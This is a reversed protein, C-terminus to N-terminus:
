RASRMWRVTPGVQNAAIEVASFAVDIWQQGSFVETMDSFHASMPNTSQSYTVIFRGRPGRPGLTVAHIYSDGVSLETYGQGAVFASPVAMHYTYSAGSMPLRRGSRVVAQVDGLPADLAVGGDRFRAAARALARRTEVTGIFGRPTRIPDAVDFPVRWYRPALAFGTMPLRELGRMFAAFLASGRASLSDTRNWRSLVDCADALMAVSSDEMTVQPVVRCDAVVDDVTLEALLNRASFFRQEWTAPTLARSAAFSEASMAAVRSREGRTSREPGIVRLYGELRGATDPTVFWHSDNSNFTVDSRITYPRLAAPIIGPQPARPDRSWACAPNSGDLVTIDAADQLARAPSSVVCTTWQADTVYGAVSINGYFVEGFRDAATINSWPSGHHRFLADRIGHVSRARSIALFTDAVRVNGRQPDAFTYARDATWPLRASAVVPGYRTEWIVERLTDRALPVRVEIRRMPESVDGFRYRTPDAPDLTLEYMTSRKDTTHTDSWGITPSFGIMPVPVGYLTSGFLDLSRPVTLHMAYLRETGQWPFHPNSFTFGGKGAGLLARGAAFANSGGVVDARWRVNDTLSQAAASVRGTARDPPTAAAIERLLHMSTEILPVQALRRWIDPPTLPRFWAQERCTEGPLADARVHRNFGDVYGRVMARVDVSAALRVRDVAASDLLYRFVADSSRNAIRGGVFGDVYGSDPGWYRSRDGALTVAKEVMLCLNDRAFAWGYGDAAGALQGARIHPVGYPTYRVEVAARALQGTAPTSAGVGLALVALTSRLRRM